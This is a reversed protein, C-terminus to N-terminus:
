QSKSTGESIDLQTAIEKHTYGEIAYLNFVLQYRPALQQVMALLEEFGYNSFIFEEEPHKEVQEVEAVSSVHM